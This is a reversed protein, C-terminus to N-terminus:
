NFASRTEFFNGFGLSLSISLSFKHICELKFGSSIHTILAQAAVVRHHGVVEVLHVPVVAERHPLAAVAAAAAAAACATCVGAVKSFILFSCCGGPSKKM